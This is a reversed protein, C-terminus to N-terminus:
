QPEPAPTPRVEGNTGLELEGLQEALRRIEEEDKRTIAADLRLQLGKIERDSDAM